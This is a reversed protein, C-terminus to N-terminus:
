PSFTLQAAGLGEFSIECVDGPKFYRLGTFSGCTVFQGATVGVTTRMMEVLAVVSGFPDGTPHGGIQDVITEGNVILTVRLEALRLQQWDSRKGGHVFGSNIICDALRELFSVKEPAAFRSSVVEIAAYADTVDAIEERTYPTARPPLDCRFRFAIEAEVGCHPMERSSIVCPSAYITNEFIPARVKQTLFWPLDVEPPTNVKDKDHSDDPALPATAKFGGITAGLKIAVAGQIAHAEEITRPRCAEPLAEIWVQKQRAAAILTAAEEVISMDVAM